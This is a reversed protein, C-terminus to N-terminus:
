LIASRRAEKGRLYRVSNRATHRDVIPHIRWPETTVQLLSRQFIDDWLHAPVDVPVDHPVAAEGKDM